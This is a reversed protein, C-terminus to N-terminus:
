PHRSMLPARRAGAQSALLRHRARSRTGRERAEGRANRQLNPMLASVEKPTFVEWGTLFPAPDIADNVGRWLEFHLHKIGEKDLPDAGIVGLPQGAKIWIDKAGQERQSPPKIEPVFLAELHTYFTAVGRHDLVVAFGRSTREASWLYGDSAAIAMWSDPMVFSKTGNPSGVRFPDGALRAFMIDVGNHDRRPKRFGDSIVPARDQWRPVPWGWRGPPLTLLGSTEPPPAPKSVTIQSGSNSPAKGPQPPTGSDSSAPPNGDQSHLYFYVAAGGAALLLLPTM